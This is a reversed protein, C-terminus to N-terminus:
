LKGSHGFLLTINIRQNEYGDAFKMSGSGHFLRSDFIVARNERYPIELSDTNKQLIWKEIRAKDDSYNSLSWDAPPLHRHVILGGHEPELNANDPTLWINLSLKAEDSHMGIRAESSVGKFAWGQVLPLNRFASTQRLATVLQLFLPSALGTELYTAVFGDIHTFDTWITSKLLYYRLMKLADEHLLGDIIQPGDKIEDLSNLISIANVTLPESVKEALVINTPQNFFEELSKSWTKSLRVPENEDEPWHIESELNSLIKAYKKGKGSYSLQDLDHRLKLRSIKSPRFELSARVLFIKEFDNLAAAEDGLALLALARGRLAGLYNENRLLVADYAEVAETFRQWFFLADGKAVYAQFFNPDIEIATQYGALAGRMNGTARLIGARNAHARAHDPKAKIVMNFTEIAANHENKRALLVGLNHRAGVHDPKLKLAERWCSEAYILDGSKYADIAKAAVAEFEKTYSDTM